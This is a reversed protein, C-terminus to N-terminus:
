VGTLCLHASQDTSLPRTDVYVNYLSSASLVQLFSGEAFEFMPLSEDRAFVVIMTVGLSAAICAATALWTVAVRLVQAAGM